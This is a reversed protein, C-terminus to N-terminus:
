VVCILSFQKPLYKIVNWVFLATQHFDNLLRCCLLIAPTLHMYPSSDFLLGELLSLMMVIMDKQLDLLEKLLEIQSSDQSSVVFSFPFGRSVSCYMM